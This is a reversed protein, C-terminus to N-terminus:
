DIRIKKNNDNIMMQEIFWHAKNKDFLREDQEEGTTITVTTTDPSLLILSGELRVGISKITTTIICIIENRLM